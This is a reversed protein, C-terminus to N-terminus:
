REPPTNPRVVRRAARTFTTPASGIAAPTSAATRRRSAPAEAMRASNLAGAASGADRRSTRAHVFREESTSPEPARRRHAGEGGLGPEGDVLQHGREEDDFSVAQALGDRRHRAVRTERGVERDELGLREGGEPHARDQEEANGRRLIRLPAARPRVVSRHGLRDATDLRGCGREADPRVDAEAFVGVVPM